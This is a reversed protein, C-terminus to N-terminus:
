NHGGSVHAIEFRGKRAKRMFRRIMEWVEHHWNNSGGQHMTYTIVM